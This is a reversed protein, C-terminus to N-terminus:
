ETITVNTTTAAAKGWLANSPASSFQLREGVSLTHWAAPGVTDTGFGFMLPQAGINEVILARRAKSSSLLTATIPVDAIPSTIATFSM